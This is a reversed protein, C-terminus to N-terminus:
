VEGTHFVAIRRKDKKSDSGRGLEEASRQSESEKKRAKLDNGVDVLTKEGNEVKEHIGFVLGTKLNGGLTSFIFIGKENVRPISDKANDSEQRFPSRPM